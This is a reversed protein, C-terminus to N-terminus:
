LFVLTGLLGIDDEVGSIVNVTTAVVAEAGDDSPVVRKTKQQCIRDQLSM